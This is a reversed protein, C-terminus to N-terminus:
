KSTIRLVTYDTLAILFYQFPMASDDTTKILMGAPTSIIGVAVAFKESHCSLDQEKQEEEVDHLVFNMFSVFVEDSSYDTSDDSSDGEHESCDDDSEPSGHDIYTYALFYYTPINKVVKATQKFFPTLEKSVEPGYAVNVAQYLPIFILLPIKIVVDVGLFYFRVAKLIEGKDMNQIENQTESIEKVAPDKVSYNDFIGEMHPDSLEGKHQNLGVINGRCKVVLKCKSGRLQMSSHQIEQFLEGRDAGDLVLARKAAAETKLSIIAIGRIKGSEPFTVCHLIRLKGLQFNKRGHQRSVRPTHALIGGGPNEAVLNSLLFMVQRNTHLVQPKQLAVLQIVRLFQRLNGFIRRSSWEQAFADYYWGPYQPDFFLLLKLWKWWRPSLSPLRITIGSIFQGVSLAGALWTDMHMGTPFGVFICQSTDHTSFLRCLVKQIWWYIFNFKQCRRLQNFAVYVFMCKGMIEGRSISCFVACAHAASTLAPGDLHKLIDCFIDSSLSAMNDVQSVSRALGRIVM